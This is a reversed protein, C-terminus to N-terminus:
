ESAASQPTRELVRAERELLNPLRPYIAVIWAVSFLYGAAGIIFAAGFRGDNREQVTGSIVSASSASASWAMAYIGSFWTRRSTPLRAMGETIFLAETGDLMLYYVVMLAIVLPLDLGAFWLVIAASAIVRLLVISPINGLRAAVIPTALAGAGGILGFVALATGTAVTSMEYTDTFFLSLFPRISNHGLAMGLEPVALAIMVMWPVLDRAGRAGAAKARASKSPREPEYPPIRSFFITQVVDFLIFIILTAGLARQAEFGALEFAGPVWGGIGGGLAVGITLLFFKLAFVNARMELPTTHALLPDGLVWFTAGGFGSLLAGVVTLAVAGDPAFLIVCIGIAALVPGWTLLRRSWGRGGLMTIPFGFLFLAFQGAALFIGIEANDYGREKAYLPFAVAYGLARILYIVGGLLFLRGAPGTARITQQYEGFFRRV